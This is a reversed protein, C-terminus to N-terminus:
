RNGKEETIEAHEPHGAGRPRRATARALLAFGAVAAPLVLFAAREWQALGTVAAFLPPALLTGASGLQVLVGNAAPLADARVVVSPLAGYAAGVGIGAAFLLLVALAVAGGPPLAGGFVLGAFVPCSLAAAGVARPTAGRRLLAGALLSGPVSAVAVASTLAGATGPPLSFRSSLYLPFLSLVAVSILATLAFGAGLLLPGATVRRGPPSPPPSGASGRDRPPSPLGATVRRGPSSPPLSGDAVGRGPPSLSPAAAVRGGPASPAGDAVGRGLPSLSPAAAVRGGPAKPPGDAVGRGPPDPSVAGDTVGRGPLGPPSPPSTRSTGAAAGAVVALVACVVALLLFWGRWGWASGLVGGAVASLALGAPVCAGWVALAPALRRPSVQSALVVPAGVMVLLYGAGEAVRLGVLVGTAPAVAVMLGGAVALVALGAAVWGGVARPRLWEGAPLAFLAAVFTITSIVLGLWTASLGFAGRVADSVPAVKGLAAAAAVGAAITTAPPM